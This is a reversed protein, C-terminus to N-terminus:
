ECCTILRELQQNKKPQQESATERGFPGSDPTLGGNIKADVVLM